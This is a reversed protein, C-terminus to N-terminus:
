YISFFHFKFRCILCALLSKEFESKSKCNKCYNEIVPVLSAPDVAKYSGGALLLVNKGAAVAEIGRITAIPTTANNDNYIKIGNKEGMNELRGPIGPFTALGFFVLAAANEQRKVLRQQELIWSEPWGELVKRDISRPLTMKM